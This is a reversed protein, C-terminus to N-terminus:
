VSPSPRWIRQELWQPSTLPALLRAAPVSALLRVLLWAAPLLILMVLVPAGSSALAEFVGAATAFKIVFGHALYAQLSRGGAASVSLARRPVLSLFAAAGLVGVGLRLLRWLTGEADGIGLAAYGNSGYLWRPDSVIGAVLAMLALVAVALVQLPLGHLRERWDDGHLHGLLFLPFFAATRSLSLGYGIDDAWGTAVAFAVAFLLPRRLRVCLPLLLRWCALSPLYWLLWYPTTVGTPGADPWGPARAALAYLGQFLLYPLLLQFAIRRLLRVDVEARAVSGSLFAFAPMHFLYIFRYAADVLAFGRLPELCHGFVVLTILGLRANDRWPDRACRAAPAPLSIARTPGKRALLM